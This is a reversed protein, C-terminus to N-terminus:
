SLLSLLMRAGLFAIIMGFILRLRSSPTRQAVRVGYSSSLFIGVLVPVVLGLSVYGVQLPLPAVALPANATSLYSASAAMALLMIVGISIAGAKKMPYKRVDALFPILVIGGGFGSLSTVCGTFSGMLVNVPDIGSPANAAHEQAGSRVGLMRVALLLLM